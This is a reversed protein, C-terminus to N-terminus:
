DWNRNRPQDVMVISGKRDLSVLADARMGDKKATFLLVWAGESPWERKVMYTDEVGPVASLQLPISKRVGNVLGEARAAVSAGPGHCGIPQMMLLAGKTLPDNPTPLYVSVGVGGRAANAAGALFLALSAAFVRGCVTSM